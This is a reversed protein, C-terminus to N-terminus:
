QDSKPKTQIDKVLAAAIDRVEKVTKDSIDTGPATGILPSIAKLAAQCKPVLEHKAIRKPLGTMKSQFHTVLAPQHLLDAGDKSYDKVVVECLAETGRVWGGLSILNALPASDLEMLAQKVENLAGDLERRVMSWDNMDAAVIIANARKVVAKRVGLGSSLALVSKGINKVEAADGAEVAIFGEAIITGLYLADKVPEGMPNAVGKIPRQVANWNPKGIKDLVLFIESPVPVIVDDVMRSQQPLKSVDITKKVEQGFTPPLASFIAATLIATLKM